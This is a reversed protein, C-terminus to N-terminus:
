PLSTWNWDLGNANDQTYLDVFEQDDTEYTM